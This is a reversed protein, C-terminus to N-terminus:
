YRFHGVLEALHSATQSLEDAADHTEGAGAQTSSAVDAVAVMNRAIESAGDAVERVSRAMESTTATQEEVAAAITSQTEAIEGVIETIHSIASVTETTQSQIAAVQGAIEETAGATGRALEKVEHAVVAFGKGAEGARAAEITANLALLHTQEAISSILGVVKGIEESSRGLAEVMSATQEAIAVADSAVSSAASAGRAIESISAGMQESGAAVGQIHQEVETAGSSIATARDSAQGATDTMQASIGSLLDSSSALQSATTAISGVTSRLQDVATNLSAMVQGYEDRSLQGDNRVTLDGDALAQISALMASVSRRTSLYYSVLLYVAVVFAALAGAVTTTRTSSFGDIRTVLLRDMVEANVTAVERAAEILTDTRARLEAVPLVEVGEELMPDTATRLASTVATLQEELRADATKDISTAVNAELKTMATSLNAVALVTAREDGAGVESRWRTETLNGSATVLTPLTVVLTDMVYFSDLDPDLILNSEDGVLTVLASAQEVASSWAEVAEPGEGGSATEITAALEAVRKETALTAGLQADVQQLQGLGPVEAADGELAADRASLVDFLVPLLAELYTTGTREKESFDMQGGLAGSYAVTVFPVPILLAVSIVVLKRLVSLRDMLARGPRFLIHM